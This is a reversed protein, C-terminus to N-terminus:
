RWVDDDDIPSLRGDIPGRRRCDCEMRAALEDLRGDLGEFGCTHRSIKTEFTYFKVTINTLKLLTM